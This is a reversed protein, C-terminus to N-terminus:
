AGLVGFERFAGPMRITQGQNGSGGSGGFAGGVFGSKLWSPLQSPLKRMEDNVAKLADRLTHWPDVFNLVIRTLTPLYQHLWAFSSEIGNLPGALLKMTGAIGRFGIGIAELWGAPAMIAVRGLLSVFGSLLNVEEPTMDQGILSFDTALGSFTSAILPGEQAVGSVFASLTTWSVQALAQAAQLIPQLGQPPGSLQQELKARGGMPHKKDTEAGTDLGFWERVTTDINTIASEIAGVGGLKDFWQALEALMGGGANVVDGLLHSAIDSFKQLQDQHSSFWHLLNDLDTQLSAFFSGPRITGNLNTGGMNLLFNQINDLLSSYGGWWTSGVIGGSAGAVGKAQAFRELSTFVSNMDTIHVGTSTATAQLGYPILEQPNINLDYKLLRSQGGEALMRIANAAQQLNVGQGGYSASGYTAAIDSLTPMFQQIQEPSLGVTSLTTIAGMLDQRTFPINMSFKSSWQMMSQAKATGGANPGGFLYSWGVDAKQTQVQLNFLEESLQQVWGIADQLITWGAMAVVFSASQALFGGLASAAGSIGSSLDNWWSLPGPMNEAASAIAGWPGADALLGTSTLMGLMGSTSGLGGGGEGGGLAGLMGGLNGTTSASIRMQDQTLSVQERVASLRAAYDDASTAAMLWQQSQMAFGDGMVKQADSFLNMADRAMSLQTGYDRISQTSLEQQERTLAMQSNLYDLKTQYLKVGDGVDLWAQAQQAFTQGFLKAADSTTSLTQRLMDFRDTAQQISAILAGADGSLRIVVDEDAM